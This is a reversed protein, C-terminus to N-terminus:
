FKCSRNREKKLRGIQKEEGEPRLGKGLGQRGRLHVGWERVGNRDDRMLPDSWIEEIVEM